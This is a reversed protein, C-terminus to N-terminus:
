RLCHRLLTLRKGGLGIVPDLNSIWVANRSRGVMRRAEAKTSGLSYSMRLLRTVLQSAESGNRTFMIIEGNTVGRNPPGIHWFIQQKIEPFTLTLVAHPAREIRAGAATLCAGTRAASYTTTTAGTESAAGLAVVGVCVFM